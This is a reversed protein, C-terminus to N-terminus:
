SLFLFDLMLRSESDGGTETAIIPSKPGGLGPVTPSQGQSPIDKVRAVTVPSGKPHM